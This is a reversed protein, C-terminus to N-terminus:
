PRALWALAHGVDRLGPGAGHAGQSVEPLCALRAGGEM